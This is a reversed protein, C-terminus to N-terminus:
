AAAAEETEVAPQKYSFRGKSLKEGQSKLQQYVSRYNVIVNLNNDKAIQEAVPIAEKVTVGNPSDNLISKIISALTTINTSTNM